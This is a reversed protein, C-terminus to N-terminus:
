KGKEKVIMRKRRTPAESAPTSPASRVPTRGDSPQGHLVKMDILIQTLQDYVSQKNGTLNFEQKAINYASRGKRRMGQIELRLSARLALYSAAKVMSIQTPANPDVPGGDLIYGGSEEDSM